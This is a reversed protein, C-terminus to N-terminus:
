YLTICGVSVVECVVFQSFTIGQKFDKKKKKTLAILKEKKDHIKKDKWATFTEFTVRTTNPGLKKRQIDILEELTLEDKKDVKVEDRKLM